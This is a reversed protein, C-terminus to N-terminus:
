LLFQIACPLALSVVTSISQLPTQRPTGKVSSSASSNSFSALSASLFGPLGDHQLVPRKSFRNVRKGAQIRLIRNVVRVGLRQLIVSKEDALDPSNRCTTANPSFPRCFRALAL